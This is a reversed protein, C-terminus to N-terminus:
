GLEIATRLIAPDRWAWRALLGLDPAKRRRLRGAQSWLAQRRATNKYSTISVIDQPREAFRNELTDLAVWTNFQQRLFQPSQNDISHFINLGTGRKAGPEDCLLTRRSALICDCFFLVDEAALRLAADFRVTEFVPRSLVMCSLHLFS